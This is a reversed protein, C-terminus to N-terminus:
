HGEKQWKRCVCLEWYNEQDPDTWKGWWRAIANPKTGYKLLMATEMEPTVQESLKFWFREKENM